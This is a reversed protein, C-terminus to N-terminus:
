RGGAERAWLDRAGAYEQEQRVEALRESVPRAEWQAAALQAELEAVDREAARQLAVRAQMDAMFEAAQAMAREEIESM